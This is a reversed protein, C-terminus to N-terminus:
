RRKSKRIANEAANLLSAMRQNNTGYVPSKERALEVPRTVPASGAVVQAAPSVEPKEETKVEETSKANKGFRSNVLELILASDNIKGALSKATDVADGGMLALDVAVHVEMDLDMLDLVMKEANEVGNVKALDELKSQYNKEFWAFYRTNEAERESNIEETLAALQEQAQQEKATLEEVSKSLEAIRPDEDGYSLAEYMRKWYDVENKHTSALSDLSETHYSKLKDAWPRVQEPFIEYDSGDWNEWDFSDVGPYSPAAEAAVEETSTAEAQVEAAPETAEAAAAETSEAPETPEASVAASQPEASASSIGGSVEEVAQTQAQVNESGEM